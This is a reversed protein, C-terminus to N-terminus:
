KLMDKISNSFFTRVQDPTAACYGKNKRLFIKANNFPRIGLAAEFEVPSSLLLVRKYEIFKDRSNEIRVKLMRVADEFYAPESSGVLRITFYDDKLGYVSYDSGIAEKSGVIINAGYCLAESLCVYKSRPMKILSRNTMFDGQNKFQTFNVKSLLTDLENKSLGFTIFKESDPLYPQAVYLINHDTDYLIYASDPRRIVVPVLGLGLRLIACSYNNLAKCVTWYPAALIM